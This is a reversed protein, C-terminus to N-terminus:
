IEIMEDRLAGGFGLDLQHASRDNFPRECAPALVIRKPNPSRSVMSPNIFRFL